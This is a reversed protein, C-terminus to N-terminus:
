AATMPPGCSAHMAPSVAPRHVFSCVMIRVRGWVGDLRELRGLREDIAVAAITAPTAESATVAPSPQASELSAAGGAATTFTGVGIV